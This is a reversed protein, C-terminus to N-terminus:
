TYISVDEKRKIGNGLILVKEAKSLSDKKGWMTEEVCIISKHESLAINPVEELVTDTKAQVQIGKKVVSICYPKKTLQYEGLINESYIKKEVICGTAEMHLREVM